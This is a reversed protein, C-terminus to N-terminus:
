AEESEVCPVDHWEFWISPQIGIELPNQMFRQQLVKITKEVQFTPYQSNELVKREIFRLEIM